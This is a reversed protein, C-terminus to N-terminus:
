IGEFFDMVRAWSGSVLPEKFCNEKGWVEAEHSHGSCPIVDYIVEGTKMDCIKFEDYTDGMGTCSNKFFVYVDNCNFKTLKQGCIQRIKGVLAQARDELEAEDCFWDYFGFCNEESLGSFNNALHKALPTKM